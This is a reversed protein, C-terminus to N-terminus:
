FKAQHDGGPTPKGLRKTDCLNKGRSGTLPENLRGPLRRAVVEEALASGISNTELVPVKRFKRKEEYSMDVAGRDAVKKRDYPRGGKEKGRV